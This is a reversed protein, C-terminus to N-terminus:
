VDPINKPLEECNEDYFTRTIVICNCPEGNIRVPHTFGKGNTRLMKKHRMWSMLSQSNFGGEECIQVFPQRIIAIEADDIRGWIEADKSEGSFKNKNRIIFDYVYDYARENVDVSARTKLFEQIMGVGLPHDDLFIHDTILKDATLVLAAAMVQKETTDGKALEVSFDRYMEQALDVIGPQQLLKIFDEGAFGYNQRCVDAVERPNTFLKEKCEIEIIRNIAGGGSNSNTIPMEGSTLICNSWTATKDIGGSKNGRTRGIGESLMYIDKDFQKKDSMIQLEDLILPMSNVFGASKERGVATSNFTHIYRGMEPSAWVSAALMLGVTKGSETGGWLHVFFSLAGLPKVLVSAFSAALIVRAYLSQQRVDRVLEKWCDYKGHNKVSDFYNRFSADGDFVLDDVYPSFGEDEIWGLRSVSNKEPIRDYNYSELDHLFRVMLHSNESNVAIGVNALDLISNKSALTKKDAIFQRWQKGKRYALVLKEVGTDINVLRQTITLPHNCAIERGYRGDVVIGYEDATWEMGCSLEIPQNEYETVSETEVVNNVRKLKEVYEQYRRKINRVKFKRQAYESLRDLAAMQQFPDDRLDYVYEYPTSSDFDDRNFEPISLIRRVVKYIILYGINWGIVSM